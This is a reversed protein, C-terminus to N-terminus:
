FPMNSHKKDLTSVRKGSLMELASVVKGFTDAPEIVDDVYGGAAAEFVSGENVAYEKALEERKEGKAIRDAYLVSVATLPEVPAIVAQTWGLTVDAGSARGALATYAAGVAMGTIVSIKPTTAEAYAHTLAAMSKVGGSLESEVTVDFGCTDVFTIVPISFADCMRVFRAAKACGAADMRGDNEKTNAVVGAANGGVRCLATYVSKGYDASLEFLSDGDAVAAAVSKADMDATAQVSAQVYDAVPAVSLNNIPLLTILEKAKAFTAAEDSVVLQAVGNQAAAEASGVKGARDGLIKGSTVYLEAKETMIVVDAISALVAASGICSGLVMSIQPVVGSLRNSAAILDGYAALAGVGEDLHAGKSDYIAFVPLGAEAAKKYLRAIKDAQARGMAGSAACANQSFAFVPSGSVYGYATLVECEGRSVSYRELETYVGDDFLMELRKSAACDAIAANANQVRESLNAFSM